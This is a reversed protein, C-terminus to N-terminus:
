VGSEPLAMTYAFYLGAFGIFSYVESVKGQLGPSSVRNSYSVVRDLLGLKIWFQLRSFTLYLQVQFPGFTKESVLRGNTEKSINWLAVIGLANKCSPGTCMEKQAMKSLM